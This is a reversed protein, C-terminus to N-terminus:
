KAEAASRSCQVSRTRLWRKRMRQVPRDVFQLLLIAGALAMAFNAALLLANRGYGHSLNFHAYYWDRPIWHFLYLPYSLDGLWMDWASSKCHVTSIAAPISVITAVFYYLTGLKANGQGSAGTVWIASRTMPLLFMVITFLLFAIASATALRPSPIWNSFECLMGTLFLWGYLDLRPEEMSVGGFIAVASWVLCALVVFVIVLHPRSVARDVLESHTKSRSLLTVSGILIALLPAVLYFQSEVNLSWAPPLISGFQTSGLVTFQTIWWRYDSIAAPWAASDSCMWSLVCLLQVVMFLPALRWWRSAYFALFPRPMHSYTSRWMRTVWFGSLVFFLGVACAGLRLPFSHHVLVLSALFLRFLGPKM